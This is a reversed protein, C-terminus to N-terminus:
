SAAAHRKAKRKKRKAGAPKATAAEPDAARAEARQRRQETRKAAARAAAAAAGNGASPKGGATAEHAEGNDGLTTGEAPEVEANAQAEAAAVAEEEEEEEEEEEKARAEDEATWPEIPLHCAAPTQFLLYYACKGDEDAAVLKDTPGCRLEVVASREPGEWCREGEEFLWVARPARLSAAPAVITPRQTANWGAWTGVLTPQPAARGQPKAPLQQLHQFPCLVWTYPENHSSCVGTCATVNFCEGLLPLFDSLPPQEAAAEKEAAGGAGGEGGKGGEGVEGSGAEGEGKGEGGADADAAAAEGPQSPAARTIPPLYPNDFGHSLLGHLMQHHGALQRMAAQMEYSPRKGGGYAAELQRRVHVYNSHLRQLMPPVARRARKMYAAAAALEDASPAPEAASATTAQGAVCRTQAACAAGEPEDSGDCCDCVGDDVLGSSLWEGEEPSAGHAACWFLGGSGACATTGPEDAGGECDCWGDNISALPLLRPPPPPEGPAGLEDRRACELGGRERWAEDRWPHAGRAAPPWTRSRWGNPPSTWDIPPPVGGLSGAGASPPVFPAAGDEPEACAAEAARCAATHCTCAGSRVAVGTAQAAAVAYGLPRAARGLQEAHEAAFAEAAAAVSLTGMSLWRAPCNARCARPLLQSCATTAALSGLQTARQKGVASWLEAREWAVRQVHASLEHATLPQGRPVRRKADVYVDALLM